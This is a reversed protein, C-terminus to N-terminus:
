SLNKTEISLMSESMNYKLNFNSFGFLTEIPELFSIIWAVTKSIVKKQLSPDAAVISYPVCILTDSGRISGPSYNSAIKSVASM